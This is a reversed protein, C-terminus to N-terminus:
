KRRANAIAEAAARIQQDKTRLSTAWKTLVGCIVLDSTSIDVLSRVGIIDHVYLPVQASITVMVPEDTEVLRLDTPGDPDLLQEVTIGFAEAIGSLKEPGPQKTSGSLISELTGYSMRAAKALGRKTVGPGM